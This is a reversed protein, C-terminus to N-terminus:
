ILDKKQSLVAMRGGHETADRVSLQARELAVGSFAESLIDTRATSQATALVQWSTTMAKGILTQDGETVPRALETTPEQWNVNAEQTAVPSLAEAIYRYTTVRATAADFSQASVWLLLALLGAFGISLAVGRTM